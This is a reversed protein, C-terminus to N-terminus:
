VMLFPTNGKFDRLTELVKTCDVKARSYGSAEFFALAGDMSEEEKDDPPVYCLSSIMSSNPM